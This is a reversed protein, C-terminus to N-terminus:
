YLQYYHITSNELLMMYKGNSTLSIYSVQDSMKAEWVVNNNNDIVFLNNDSSLKNGSIALYRGDVSFIANILPFTTSIVNIPYKRLEELMPFKILTLNDKRFLAGIKGDPSIIGAEKLIINGEKDYIEKDGDLSSIIEANQSISLISGLGKEWIHEGDKNLLHIGGTSVVLFLNDPSFIINEISTSENGWIWLNNANSDLMRLGGGYGSSSAVAILSGDPSLYPDDGESKINWKEIGKSDAYHVRWDWGHKEADIKKEWMYKETWATSFVIANGNDSIDVSFPLRDIRPGWHFIENGNMDYMIIQRAKKSSLIINGSESAMKIDSVKFPLEKKWLLKPELAEARMPALTSACFVALALIIFFAKININTKM